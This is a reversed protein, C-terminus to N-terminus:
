QDVEESQDEEGNGEEPEEYDIDGQSLADSPEVWINLGWISNAINAWEQRLALGDRNVLGVPSTNMDQEDQLKHEKKQFIGGNDVGYLSLRFNDFAQLTLLYDQFTTTSRSGLDQVDLKAVIPVFPLGNKAHNEVSRSAALVSVSEDADHVRVGKVGSSAIMATRLFQIVDTEMTLFPDQLNCRPTANNPNRQPTYDQLIAAYGSFLDFVDPDSNSSEGPKEQIERIVKLKLNTLIDYLAEKKQTAEKEKKDTIEGDKGYSLPVPHITNFRGYFDITGELAFPTIWYQDQLKFICVTYHYYLMRELFQGTIGNPLNFWQFRNVADQEDMIRLAKRIDERVTSQFPNPAARLGTKPDIGAMALLALDPLVPKGKKNKGM